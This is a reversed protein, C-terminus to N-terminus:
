ETIFYLGKPTKELFKVLNLMKSYPKNFNLSKRNEVRIKGFSAIKYRKIISYIGHQM